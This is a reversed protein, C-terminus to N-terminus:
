PMNGCFTWLFRNHDVSLAIPDDSATFRDNVFPLPAVYVVCRRGARHFGIQERRDSAGSWFIGASKFHNRAGTDHIISGMDDLPHFFM